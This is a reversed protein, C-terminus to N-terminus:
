WGVSNIATNLFTPSVGVFGISIGNCEGWRTFVMGYNPVNKTQSLYAMILITQASFARFTTCVKAQSLSLVRADLSLCNEVLEHVM